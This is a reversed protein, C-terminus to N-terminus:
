FHYMGGKRGGQGGGRARAEVQPFDRRVRMQLLRKGENEGGEFEGDGWWVWLGMCGAGRMEDVGLVMTEM